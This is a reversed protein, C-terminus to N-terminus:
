IVPPEDPPPPPPPAPKEKEMHSILRQLEDNLQRLANVLHPRVEQATQEGATRVTEAARRMDGRMREAEPSSWNEKIARNVESAMAEIGNKLQEARQRNEEKTWATQFAKAISNGLEAFQRGVEDWGENASRPTEEKKPEEPGAESM